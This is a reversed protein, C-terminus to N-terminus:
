STAEDSDASAAVTDQTHDTAAAASEKWKGSWFDDTGIAAVTTVALVILEVMLLQVGHKDFWYLLGQGSQRIEAAKLGDLMQVTMVGYACASIAFITGTAVLLIYFPNIYKKPAM